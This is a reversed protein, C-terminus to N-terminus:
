LGLPLQREGYYYERWLTDLRDEHSQDKLEHYRPLLPVKKTHYINIYGIDVDATSISIKACGPDGYIGKLKAKYGHDDLFKVFGKAENELEPTSAAVTESESSSSTAGSKALEDARENWRDGTHGKVKHWHIHVGCDRVFAAYERAVMSRTKWEGTAWKEIGEYDYLISIEEVSNRQCWKIAEETAALEGAINRTNQASVGPVPGFLEEILQGEKLIVVGYGTLGSMFSGDVYIRHGCWVSDDSVLSMRGWCKELEPIIAKDKLERTRLSYSDRKPSYYINVKGSSGDSGSISVKVTYDRFSDEIVAAAIGEDKLLRIFEESAEFLEDQFKYVM